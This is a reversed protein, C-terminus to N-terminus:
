WLNDVFHIEALLYFAVTNLESEVGRSRRNSAAATTGNHGHVSSDAPRCLM